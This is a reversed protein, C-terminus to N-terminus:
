EERVRRERTREVSEDEQLARRVVERRELSEVAGQAGEEDRGGRCEGERWGRRELVAVRDHAGARALQGLLGVAELAREPEGVHLAAAVLADVGAGAGGDRVSASESEREGAAVFGPGLAERRRDKPLV